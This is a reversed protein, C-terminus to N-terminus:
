QTCNAPPATTGYVDKITVWGKPAIKTIWDCMNDKTVSMVEVLASPVDKKGNNITGDAPPTMKEALYTAAITAHAGMLDIRTWVSMTQTGEIILRDNTVDADLGSVYVKGALKRAKLAQAVGVATSDNATVFAQVNDNQAALAAEATALALEGSWNKHWQDAVIKVSGDAVLPDLVKHYVTDEDRAVNNDPDGKILVYNPPNTKSPPAAKLAGEVQLTAMKVNDRTLYYDVDSNPIGIDYTLIPVQAQHAKAVLPLAAKDDVPVVILASIGQSLLNEVQSAQASPDDAAWQVLLEVNGIQKAADQMSAVDFQWRPQTQTRMAVGIKIPTAPKPPLKWIDVAPTSAGTAQPTQAQVAPILCVIFALVSVLTLYVVVRSRSM